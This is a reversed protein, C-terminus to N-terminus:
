NIEFSFVDSTESQNGAEDFARVVWYYAAMDAITIEHSSTARTKTVLDTLMQNRYVYLSDFEITGEVAERTWEFRVTNTTLMANNAPATLEPKRPNNSDIVVTHDTYLTNQTQNEARVQWKVEGEPLTLQINTTTVTEEQLVVDNSDLIQIRYLVADTVANWQLNVLRNNLIQNDVPSLLSVIRSSFDESERVEFDAATYITVSNENEARVRWEYRNAPLTTTYRATTLITDKVIQNATEFNPRAIQVKYKTAGTVEEWRFDVTTNNVTSNDLPAVITVVEETIDEEFLIEECSWFCGLIVLYLM